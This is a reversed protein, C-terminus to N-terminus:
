KKQLWLVVIIIFEPWGRCVCKNVILLIAAQVRIRAEIGKQRQSVMTSNLWKFILFKVYGRELKFMYSDHRSAHEMRDKSFEGSTISDKWFELFWNLRESYNASHWCGTLLPKTVCMTLWRPWMTRANRLSGDPQSTNWFFWLSSGERLVEHYVNAFYFRQSKSSM